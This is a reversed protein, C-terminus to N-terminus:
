TMTMTLKLGKQSTGHEVKEAPSCEFTLNFFQTSYLCLGNIVENSFVAVSSVRSLPRHTTNSVGENSVVHPTNNHKSIM